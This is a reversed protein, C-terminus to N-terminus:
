RDALFSFFFLAKTKRETTVWMYTHVCVCLPLYSNNESIFSFTYKFFSIFWSGNMNEISRMRSIKTAYVM